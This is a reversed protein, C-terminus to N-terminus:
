NGTAVAAGGTVPLGMREWEPIGGRFWYVAEFQKSAQARQVAKFSKWCEPGNCYMVVKKVGALKTLDFNDNGFEADVFRPSREDYPVLQAQPIHKAQYEAATRVDIVQAGAKTLTLVENASVKSVGAVEEPTYHGLGTIYKFAAPAAPTLAPVAAQSAAWDALQSKRVTSLTKRVVLTQGPVTPSVELIRGAQPNASLLAKAIAEPMVTAASFKKAIAFSGVEYSGSTFVSIFDKPRMGHDSLLATAVASASSDEQPLYLTRRKLDEFKGIDPGVVFAMPTMRGDFGVIEYFTEKAASVALNSPVWLADFDGSRIGIAVDRLVRSGIVAVPANLAKALSAESSARRKLSNSEQDLPEFAVLVSLAQGEAPAASKAPITPTAAHTVTALCATVWLALAGFVRRDSGLNALTLSM